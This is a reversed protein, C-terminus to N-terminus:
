SFFMISSPLVEKKFFLLLFSKNFETRQPPVSASEPWVNKQKKKKLFLLAQKSLVTSGMM